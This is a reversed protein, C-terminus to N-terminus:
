ARELRVAACEGLVRREAEVLGHRAFAAAIGPPDGSAVLREPPRDLTGAAVARLVDPGDDVTVTEAWQQAGPEVAAVMVGNAAAGRRIAEPAGIAEVPAYGLRAACVALIGSGGSWDCLGGGPELELLLELCLRTAAGPDGSELVIELVDRGGGAPEQPSRVRLRRGGSAIEVM